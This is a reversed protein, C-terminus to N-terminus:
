KRYNLALRLAFYAEKEDWPTFRKIRFRDNALDTLSGWDTSLAAKFGLSEAMVMHSENYDQGFKGNPYAFYEVPEEIIQELLEKSQKMEFLAVDCNEKMLIPHNHTHAGITMGSSHMQKIQEASLFYEELTGFHTQEKLENIVKERECLSLYKTL